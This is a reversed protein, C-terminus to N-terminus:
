DGTERRMGAAEATEGPQHEHQQFTRRRFERVRLVQGTAVTAGTDTTDDSQESLDSALVRPVDDLSTLPIVLVGLLM